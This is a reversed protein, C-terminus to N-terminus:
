IHYNASGAGVMKDQMEQLEQWLGKAALEAQAKWGSPDNMKYRSGGLDLLIAKLEEPKSKVIDDYRNMGASQLISEIKPGIGIIKTLDDGSRKNVLSAKRQKSEEIVVNQNSSTTRSRDTKVEALHDVLHLKKIVPQAPNQLVIKDVPAPALADTLPIKYTPKEETIQSALETPRLLNQRFIWAAYGLALVYVTPFLWPMHTCLTEM